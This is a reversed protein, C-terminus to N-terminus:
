PGARPRRREAQRAALLLPQADGARDGDLGLHEQHVLGARREVRDGGAAISSRICSSLFSYVITITVWLMCCAARTLSRVANKVVSTFRPRGASRSAPRTRRSRWLDERVGGVLPGLVVDGAPEASAVIQSVLEVVIEVRDAVLDGPQACRHDLQDGRTVSMRSCCSRSPASYTSRPSSSISARATSMSSRRTAGARAGPLRHGAVQAVQGRCELECRLDLPRGVQAAVDALRGPPDVACASSGFSRPCRDLLHAVLGLLLVLVHDLGVDGYSSAGRAASGSMSSYRSSRCRATSGASRRSGRRRALDVELDGHLQRHHGAEVFAEAVMGDVDALPDQVDRGAPQGLVVRRAAGPARSASRPSRCPPGPRASIM